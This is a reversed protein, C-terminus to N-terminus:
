GKQANKEFDKKDAFKFFERHDNVQQHAPNCNNWSFIKQCLHGIGTEIQDDHSAKQVRNPHNKITPFAHGVM